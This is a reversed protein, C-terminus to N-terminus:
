KKKAKAAPKKAAAKTTGSKKPAAKPSAATKASKASVKATKEPATKVATAKPKPEAAKKRAKNAAAKGKGMPQGCCIVACTPCGCPDEVALILGCTECSFLDGKKAKAM